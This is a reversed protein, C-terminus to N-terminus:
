PSSKTLRQQCNYIMNSSQWVGGWWLHFTDAYQQSIKSIKLKRFALNYQLFTIRWQTTAITTINQLHWLACMCAWMVSSISSKNNHCAVLVKTSDTWAVPKVREFARQKTAEHTITKTGVAPTKRELAKLVHKDLYIHCQLFCKRQCLDAKRPYSLSVNARSLLKQWRQSTPVLKCCRSSTWHWGRWQVHSVRM